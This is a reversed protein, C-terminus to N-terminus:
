PMQVTPALAVMALAATRELALQEATPTAALEVESAHAFAVAEALAELRPDFTDSM